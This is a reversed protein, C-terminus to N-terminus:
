AEPVKYKGTAHQFGDNWGIVYSRDAMLHEIRKALREIEDAARGTTHGVYNDPNFRQLARLESVLEIVM